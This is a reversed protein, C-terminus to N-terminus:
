SVVQGVLDGVTTVSAAPCWTVRQSYPDTALFPRDPDHVDDLEDDEPLYVVFAQTHGDSLILQADLEIM